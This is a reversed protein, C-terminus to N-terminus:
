ILQSYEVLPGNLPLIKSIIKIRVTDVNAHSVTVPELGMLAMKTYFESMKLYQIRM